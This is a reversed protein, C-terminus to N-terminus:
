KPSQRKARRRPPYVNPTPVPPREGRPVIWLEMNRGKRYGGNIAIIRTPNIGHKKVLYSRDITLMKHTTGAPDSYVNRYPVRRLRGTEDQEEFHGSDIWHQAYAILYGRADTHKKLEEAYSDLRAAEDEELSHYGSEIYSPLSAHDYYQEDYKYAWAYGDLPDNWGQIEPPAAGDPVVWLEGKACDQKGGDIGVVRNADIGLLKVLRNKARAAHRLSIGPLDGRTRYFIIYGRGTPDTRLESAFADLRAIEDSYPINGFEDFKRAIPESRNSEQARLAIYCFMLLVACCFIPTRKFHKM